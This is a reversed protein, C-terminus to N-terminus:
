KTGKQLEMIKKCVTDLLLPRYRHLEVTVCYAQVGNYTRPVGATYNEPDGSHTHGVIIGRVGHLLNPNMLTKITDIDHILLWNEGVATVVAYEDHVTMVRGFNIPKIGNRLDHNGRVLHKEGHLRDALMRLPVKPGLGFDGLIWVKDIEAVVSNWRTVILENMKKVSEIGRVEAMKTHNLHLDSSVWIKRQQM